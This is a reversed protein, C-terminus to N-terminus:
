AKLLYTKAWDKRRRSKKRREKEKKNKEVMM